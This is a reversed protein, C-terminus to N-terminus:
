NTYTVYESDRPTYYAQSTFTLNGVFVSTIPSTYAYSSSVTVLSSNSSPFLTASPATAGGSCGNSWDQVIQNSSNKRYYRVCVTNSGTWPAPFMIDDAVARIATVEASTLEDSRGILDAITDVVQVLKRQVIVAQCVEAVGVYFMIMVPAILAFEVAPSGGRHRLFSKLTRMVM